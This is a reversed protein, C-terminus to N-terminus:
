GVILSPLLGDIGSVKQYTALHGRITLALKELSSATRILAYPDAEKQLEADLYGMLIDIFM